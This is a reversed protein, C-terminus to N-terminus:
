AARSREATGKALGSKIRDLSTPQATTTTTTTTRQATHSPAGTGSKTESEFARAYATNGKMESVLGDITMPSGTRPDIRINGDSDVVRAVYEDGEEVVKTQSRVIPLLLEISGKAKALAGKAADGVMHRELSGRMKGVKTDAEAKVADTQKQYDAKIRDLNVKLETGNKASAQLTDLHTKLADLLPTKEDFTIGSAAAFDEFAKIVQRRQASEGQAKQLDKKTSLLAAHNGKAAGVFPKFADKLAFKGDAGKDYAVRYEEPTSDLNDVVEPFDFDVM